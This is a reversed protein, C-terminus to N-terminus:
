CVDGIGKEIQACICGQFKFDRRDITHANDKLQDTMVFSRIINKYRQMNKVGSVKKPRM